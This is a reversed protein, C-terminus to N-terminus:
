FECLSADIVRTSVTGFNRKPIYWSLNLMFLDHSLLECHLREVEEDNLFSFIDRTVVFHFSQSDLAARLFLLFDDYFNADPNERYRFDALQLMKGLGFQDTFEMAQAFDLSIDSLLNFISRQVDELVRRREPTLNMKDSRKYITTLVSKTNPSMDCFSDLFVIEKDNKLEKGNDFVCIREEDRQYFSKLLKYFLEGNEIVLNLIGGGVFEVPVEIGKIRLEMM